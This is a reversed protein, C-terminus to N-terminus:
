KINARGVSFFNAEDRDVEVVVGNDSDDLTVNTTELAGLNAGKTIAYNVSPVMGTVTILAKDGVLDFASIKPNAINAVNTEAFTTADAESNRM